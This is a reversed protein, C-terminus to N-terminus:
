AWGLLRYAWIGFYERLCHYSLLLASRRPWWPGSLNTSARTDEMASAPIVTLGQRKFSAVARPMHIASTVLLIRLRKERKLIAASYLANEHTSMSETETQLANAPIGQQELKKAMQLAELEGGSLLITNAKSSRFLKLGFGIRTVETDLPDESWDSNSNPLTGGGLVVIADADPYSAADRQVYQNALSKQLYNAFAPTYCLWIWLLSAAILAFASRFHRCTLLAIGPIVFILTPLLPYFEHDLREIFSMTYIALQQFKKLSVTANSCCLLEM